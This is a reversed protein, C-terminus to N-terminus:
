YVSKDCTCGLKEAKTIIEQRNKCYANPDKKSGLTRQLQGIYRGRGNNEMQWSFPDDRVAPCSVARVARTGCKPCDIEDREAIRCLTDFNYKCKPCNAEYTPM